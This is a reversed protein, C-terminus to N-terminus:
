DGQNHRYQQIPMDRLRRPDFSCLLREEYYAPAVLVGNPEGGRQTDSYSPPALSAPFALRALTRHSFASPWLGFESFESSLVWFESGLVEAGAGRDSDM